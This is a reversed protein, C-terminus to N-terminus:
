SQAEEHKDCCECAGGAHLVTETALDVWARYKPLRESRCGFLVEIVRRGSFENNVGEFPIAMAVLGDTKAALREHTRALEIARDIESQV